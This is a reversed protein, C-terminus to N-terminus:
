QIIMLNDELKLYESDKYMLSRIIETTAIICDASPQYKIDGTLIGIKEKGFIEQFDSFKQNSLAKIPNCIIVKKNKKLGNNIAYVIPVTKGSGTPSCLLLHEGNMIRPIAIKQPDTFDPFKEKFWNRVPPSLNELLEETEMRDQIYQIEPM